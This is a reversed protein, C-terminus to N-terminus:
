LDESLPFLHLNVQVVRRKLDTSSDCLDLLTAQLANLREKLVPMLEPPIAVTLGLFHREGPAVTGVAAQSRAAMDRHYNHVALTGVERPTVVSADTPRLLGAEDRVLLGLRELTGLAARVEAESARPRVVSAIWAPDERFGPLAALERVLPLLGKSLYEYADGELHRADRFRREASIREWAQAKLEDTAAQNFEVLALFFATQAEDLAMARAFAPGTLPTLNRRGQIIEQLLSPSKQGAAEAFRRHSFRPEAAKRAEFWAALFARHDLYAFVDPMTVGM